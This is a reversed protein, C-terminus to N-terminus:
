QHTLYEMVAFGLIFQLLFIGLSIWALKSQRAGVLVLAIITCVIAVPLTFVAVM